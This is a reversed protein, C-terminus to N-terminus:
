IEESGRAQQYPFDDRLGVVLTFRMETGTKKKRGGGKTKDRDACEGEM